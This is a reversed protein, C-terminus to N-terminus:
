KICTIASKAAAVFRRVMDADKKRVKSEVGSSVDVAYPQVLEIANGVNEPTLGGALIVPKKVREVLEKSIRWDHEKGTGGIEGTGASATDLLLADVVREYAFANELSKEKDDGVAIKKVLRIRSRRRKRLEAVLEVPEDGHLQICDAGIEEISRLKDDEIARNDLTLVVVRSVFVPLAAFLIEADKLEIYRKTNAVNIVGVADAGAEAAIVADEVSTNGCIKVRTSRNGSM